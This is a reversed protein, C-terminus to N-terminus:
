RRDPQHLRQAPRGGPKAPVWVAAWMLLLMLAGSFAAPRVAVGLILAVGVGLLGIM